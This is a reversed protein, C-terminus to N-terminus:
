RDMEEVENYWIKRPGIRSRMKWRITKPQAEIRALMAEIRSRITENEAKLSAPLAPLFEDRLRALNMTVTYYFGWDDSLLDAIYRADITEKGSEGVEHCLLLLMTDQADKQTLRVIQMKELLMDALPITPYDLTLRRRLDLTHCMELRDYFVDIRLDPNSRRFVQREPHLLAQHRDLSYGYEEILKEAEHSQRSFGAFDIDSLARGLIGGSSLQGRCHLHFAVAGLLRLVIKREDAGRLIKTADDLIMDEYFKPQAAVFVGRETAAQESL